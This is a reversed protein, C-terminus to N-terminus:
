KINLVEKVLEFARESKGGVHWEIIEETPTGENKLYNHGNKYNYITAVTGDEFQMVWEADVKYGDGKDPVGFKKALTKYFCKIEGQLSTGVLNIDRETRLHYKLDSKKIRPKKDEKIDEVLLCRGDFKKLESETPKELEYYWVNGFGTSVGVFSGLPSCSFIFREAITVRTTGDINSKIPKGIEIFNFNECIRDVHTMLWKESKRFDKVTFIQEIQDILQKKLDEKKM